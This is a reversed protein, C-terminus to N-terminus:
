CYSERGISILKRLKKVFNLCIMKVKQYTLSEEIIMMIMIREVPTEDIRHDFTPIWDYM